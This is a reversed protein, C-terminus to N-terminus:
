CPSISSVCAKALHYKSGFFIFNASTGVRVIFTLQEPKVALQGNDAVSVGM